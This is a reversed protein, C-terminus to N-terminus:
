VPRVLTRRFALLALGILVVAAGGLVAVETAVDSLGGGGSVLETIGDILWAHPTVTHAVRRMGDSFVELPVMSGGLAALGLGLGLGIGSAQNENRLLSGILMGAGTGVLCYVFVLVTVALPDGWRVGFLVLSAVVILLAQVLAIGFRGLLEGFMIHSSRTPTASMRTLVGLTRNEILYVSTTLSTLWVFLALSQAAGFGFQGFDSFDPGSPDVSTTVVSVGPVDVTSVLEIAEDLQGSDAIASAARLQTSQEAVAADVAVGVSSGVSNPQAFYELAVSDGAALAAGYGEPVVLGATLSQREVAIEVAERESSREVEIADNAELTEVLELALPDSEDFVVGLRTQGGGGFVLGISLVLLLPFAFVFFLNSRDALFRRVSTTAIDLIKM